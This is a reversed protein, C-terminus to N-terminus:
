GASRVPRLAGVYVAGLVVIGGLVLAVTVPEDDLWASLAVTVVPVLVFGYAARSASWHRLVVLYLVFVVVTGAVVLYAIAGWTEARRPLVAHEGLALSAVLLALAGVTVGVANMTVPHVRPFRRVLVAAQAICLVSGLLALVYSLPLSGPPFIIGIGVVALLAGLVAARRLREQGQAVALLLTALPVLALPVAGEGAHLELLAYYALAYAGGFGLLGYLVAGLLARGRPLPQRLVAVLGLLVVAALAFRLFAAWMPADGLERLSIRIGVGNGGALLSEVVFAALAVREARGDRRDTM